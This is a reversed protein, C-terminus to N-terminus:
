DFPLWGWVAARGTGALQGATRSVGRALQPGQIDPQGTPDSLGSRSALVIWTSLLKVIELSLGALM